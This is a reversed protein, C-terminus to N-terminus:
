RCFVAKGPFDVANDLGNQSSTTFRTFYPYGFDYLQFNTSSQAKPETALARMPALFPSVATSGMTM